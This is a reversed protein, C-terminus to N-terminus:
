KKEIKKNPADLFLLELLNVICTFIIVFVNVKMISLFVALFTTNLMMLEMLVYYKTAYHEKNIEKYMGYKLALFNLPAIFIMTYNLKFFYDLKFFIFGIMFLLMYKYSYKVIQKFVEM